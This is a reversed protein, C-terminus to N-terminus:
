FHIKVKAMKRGNNEILIHWTGAKPVSYDITANLIAENCDEYDFRRKGSDWKQYNIEDVFYVDLPETSSIEGKLSDKKSFEFDYSYSENSRIIIIDERLSDKRNFIFSRRKNKSKPEAVIETKLREYTLILSPVGISVAILVGVIQWTIISFSGLILSLIVGVGALLVLTKPYM